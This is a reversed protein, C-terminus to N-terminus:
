AYPMHENYWLTIRSTGAHTSLQKLQTQRKQSGISQLKDPEETWLIKRLLFVLTPQWARRWPSKIVWPDFRRRKIDGANTPSNKVM